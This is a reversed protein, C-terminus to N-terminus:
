VLLVVIMLELLFVACEKCSTSYLQSDFSAHVTIDM